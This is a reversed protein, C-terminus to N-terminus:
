SWVSVYVCASPARRTALAGAAGSSPPSSGCDRRAAGLLPPSLPTSAGGQYSPTSAGDHRGARRPAAEWVRVHAEGPLLSSGYGPALHPRLGYRRAGHGMAVAGRGAVSGAQRRRRARRANRLRWADRSNPHADAGNAEGRGTAVARGGGRYGQRTSPPPVTRTPHTDSREGRRM